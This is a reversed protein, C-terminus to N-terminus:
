QDAEIEVKKLASMFDSLDTAKLEKLTSANYDKLTNVIAAKFRPDKRVLSLAYSVVEDHTPYDGEQKPEPKPEPKPKPKLKPEPKTPTDSNIGNSIVTLVERIKQLEEVVLRIDDSTPTNM